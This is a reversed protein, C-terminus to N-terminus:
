PLSFYRARLGVSFGQQTAAIRGEVSSIALACERSHTRVHRPRISPLSTLQFPAVLDSVVPPPLPRFKIMDLRPGEAPVSVAADHDSNMLDHAIQRPLHERILHYFVDVLHL